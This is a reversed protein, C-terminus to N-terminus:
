ENPILGICFCRRADIGSRGVHHHILLTDDDFYYTDVHGAPHYTGNSSLPVTWQRRSNEEDFKAFYEHRITDSPYGDLSSETWMLLSDVEPEFMLVEYVFPLRGNRLRCKAKCREVDFEGLHALALTYPADEPMELVFEDGFIGLFPLFDTMGIIQDSDYDPNWPWETQASGAVALCCAIATLLHKM